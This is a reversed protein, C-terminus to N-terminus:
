VLLFLCKLIIVVIVVMCACCSVTGLDVAPLSDGMEGPQDGRLVTDGLGLIGGDNLGWCKVSDNDLVVCTHRDGLALSKATRGQM